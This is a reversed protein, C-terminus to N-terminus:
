PAPLLVKLTELAGGQTRRPSWIIEVEEGDMIILPEGDEEATEGIVKRLPEGDAEEVTKGNTEEATEGVVTRVIAGDTTTVARAVGGLLQRTVGAVGKDVEGDMPTHHPNTPHQRAKTLMAGAQRVQIEQDLWPLM